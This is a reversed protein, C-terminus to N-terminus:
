WIHLAPTKEGVRKRKARQKSGEGTNKVYSPLFRAVLEYLFDQLKKGAIHLTSKKENFTCCNSFILFMDHLFEDVTSYHDYYDPAVKCKVTELDMPQPIVKHYNPAELTSVPEHFPPSAEHCFIELLIRQCLKLEKGDLGSEAKRKGDVDVHDDPIKLVDTCMLCHWNDEERPYTSM